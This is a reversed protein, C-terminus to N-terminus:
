PLLIAITRDDHNGVAWFNLWELLQADAQPNDKTLGVEGSLDAWFKDWKAADFFDSESPFKPDSVGDTMAVVATFDPVIEFHIRSLIEDGSDWIKSMTLFRTQGAFEGSDPRNLIHVGAGRRYIGVGGDGVAIAAVFWGVVFKKAVTFILTTAFDEPSRNQEEAEKCIRRYAQHGVNGLSKYLANRVQSRVEENAGRALEAVLISFPGDLTTALHQLIEDSVTKCALEAGRRSLKASGAGDAVALFYWGREPVHGLRFDDDRHDGKNAHSRGRRSAGLLVSEGVVRIRDTHPRHFPQAPDPEIEKWLSRPDPNVTLNIRASEQPTFWLRGRLQVSFAITIPHDGAETPEGFIRIREGAPEAKLGVRELGDIQRSIVTLDEARVERPLGSARRIKLAVTADYKKGVMANPMPFDIELRPATAAVPAPRPAPAPKRPAPNPSPPQEEIYRIEEPPATGRAAAEPPAPAPAPSPPGEAAPPDGPTPADGAPM